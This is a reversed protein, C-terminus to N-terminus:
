SEYRTEKEFEQENEGEESQTKNRMQKIKALKMAENSYNDM